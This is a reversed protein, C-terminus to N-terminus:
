KRAARDRRVADEILGELAEGRAVSEDLVFRLEPQRRLRFSEGLRKRMYGSAAKLSAAATEGDASGPLYWVRCVSLDPSFAVHTFQVGSLRPDRLESYTMTAFVRLARASLRQARTFERPVDTLPQQARPPGTLDQGGGRERLM